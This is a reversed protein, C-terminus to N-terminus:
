AGSPWWGWQAMLARDRELFRLGIDRRYRLNPIVINDCRRYAAARAQEPTDGTGTVAM